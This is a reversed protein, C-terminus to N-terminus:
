PPEAGAAIWERVACREEEALVGGPPMDGEGEPELHWILESCEAEGPLVYRSLAAYATEATDGMSLGGSASTGGHCGSLACSTSVTNAYVAAFTPEYQPACTEPLAVCPEDCGGLVALWLM